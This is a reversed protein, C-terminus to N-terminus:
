HESKDAADKAAAKYRKAALRAVIMLVLAAVALLHDPIM